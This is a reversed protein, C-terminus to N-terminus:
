ECLWLDGLAVWCQPFSFTIPLHHLFTVGTWIEDHKVGDCSSCLELNERYTISALGLTPLLHPTVMPGDTGSRHFCWALPMGVGCGYGIDRPVKQWKGLIGFKPCFPVRALILYVDGWLGGFLPRLRIDICCGLSLRCISLDPEFM